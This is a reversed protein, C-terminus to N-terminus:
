ERQAIDALIQRANVGPDVDPYSATVLGDPGVVFSVRSTMGLFTSVGFATSWVHDPDAILPFPLRHERAFEAHSAQDDASVGYLLIDAERYRDWADRFACAQETCGPTGDKPYFYVVLYKGRADAIRRTKGEQDVGSLEPAPKGVELLGAGGDPRQVAACAIVIVAACLLLGGLIWWRLRKM